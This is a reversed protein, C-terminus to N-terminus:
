CTHEHLGSVQVACLMESCGCTRIPRNLGHKGLEVSLEFRADTHAKLEYGEDKM